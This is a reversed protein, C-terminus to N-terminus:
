IQKMLEEKSIGSMSKLLYDYTKSYVTDFYEEKTLKVMPIKESTLIPKIGEQLTELKANPVSNDSVLDFALLDYDENVVDANETVSKSVSGLGRSSIGLQVGDQILQKAIQGCPTGLIELIGVLNDGDWYMEVVLHSSRQLSVVSSDPHDLEGLARRAQVKENYKKSERDLIERTYIRGNFNKVGATQLVTKVRFPKNPENEISEILLPRYDKLEARNISTNEKVVTQPKTLLASPNYTRKEGYIDIFNKM